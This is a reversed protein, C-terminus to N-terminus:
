SMLLHLLLSLPTASPMGRIVRFSCDFRYHEASPLWTLYASIRGDYTPMLVGSLADHFIAHAILKFAAEASVTLSEPLAFDNSARVKFINEDSDVSYVLTM